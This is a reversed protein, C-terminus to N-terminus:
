GGRSCKLGWKSTRKVTKSLNSSPSSVHCGFCIVYPWLVVLLTGITPARTKFFAPRPGCSLALPGPPLASWALSSALLRLFFPRGTLPRSDTAIPRYTKRSFCDWSSFNTGHSISRVLRHSLHYLICYRWGLLNTQRTYSHYFNGVCM